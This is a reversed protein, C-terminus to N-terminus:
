ETAEALAIRLVYLLERIAEDEPLGELIAYATKATSFYGESYWFLDSGDHKYNQAGATTRNFDELTDRSGQQVMVIIGALADTFGKLHAKEQTTSM